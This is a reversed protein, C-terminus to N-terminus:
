LLAVFQLGNSVKYHKKTVLKFLSLIGQGCVAEWEIQFLQM